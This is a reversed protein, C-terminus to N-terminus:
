LCKQAIITLKTTGTYRRKIRHCEAVNFKDVLEHDEVKTRAHRKSNQQSKSPFEESLPSLFYTYCPTTEKLSDKLVRRIIKAVNTYFLFM